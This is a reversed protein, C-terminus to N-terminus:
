IILAFLFVPIAITAILLILSLFWTLIAKGIGFQHVESIGIIMIVLVWVGLIFEVAGIFFAIGSDLQSKFEMTNTIFNGGFYLMGIVQLGLTPISPVMSWAFVTRMPAYRGRGKLWSGSWQLYFIFLLYFLLVVTCGGILVGILYSISGLDGSLSQPPNNSMSNAIGGLILLLWIYRDPDYRLLFRLTPRPQLWITFLPNKGEISPGPEEVVDLISDKDM